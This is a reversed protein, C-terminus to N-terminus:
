AMVSALFPGFKRDCLLSAPRCQAFLGTWHRNRALRGTRFAARRFKQNITQGARHWYPPNTRLAKWWQHACVLCSLLRCSRGSRFSEIEVQIPRLGFRSRGARPISPRSRRRGSVRKRHELGSQVPEPQFQSQGFSGNFTKNDIVHFPGPRILCSGKWCARRRIVTNRPWGPNRPGRTRTRM